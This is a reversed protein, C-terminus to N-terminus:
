ITIAMDCYEKIKIIDERSLKDSYSEINSNIEAMVKQKFKAEDDPNVTINADKYSQAAASLEPDDQYSEIARQLIDNSEELIQNKYIEFTSAQGVTPDYDLLVLASLIRSCRGNICVVSGHEVCDALADIIADQMDARKDVNMPHSCRRWAWALIETDLCEFTSISNGTFRSLAQKANNRKVNDDALDDVAQTVQKIIEAIENHDLDVKIKSITDRLDNNVKPDHVNQTDNTYQISDNFFQNVAAQKTENNLLATEARTQLMETKAEDAPVFVAIRYAIFDPNEANNATIDQAAATFHDNILQGVRTDQMVDGIMNLLITGRLYHDDAQMDPLEGLGRYAERAVEINGNATAALERVKTKFRTETFYKYIFCGFVIVAVIIIAVIIVNM